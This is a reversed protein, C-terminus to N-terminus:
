LSERTLRSSVTKCPGTYKGRGRAAVVGVKTGYSVPVEVLDGVLLNGGTPDIYTYLAAYAGGNMSYNVQVYKHPDIDEVEFEFEGEFEHVIGEAPIRWSASSSDPKRTVTLRRRVPPTEPGVEHPEFCTPLSNGDIRVSYDLLIGDDWFANCVEGTKGDYSDSTNLRVRDGVKITSM